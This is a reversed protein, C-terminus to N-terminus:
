QKRGAGGSGGTDVLVGIVVDVVDVVDVVAGSGTVVLVVAGAGTLM